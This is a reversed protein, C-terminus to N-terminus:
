TGTTAPAVHFRDHYERPSMGVCRRFARRLREESGLGCRRAIAEIRMDSEELLRRAMEVRTREIFRAPTMGLERDFLRALTRPSMAGHEALMDATIEKTANALIWAALAALGEHGIMQAALHPSVQKEGGMRRLFMVKRHAVSVAIEKGFDEQVLALSQDLAASAGASTLFKGDRVFVQDREVRIAPFDAALRDCARWHTTARHGDLLGSTALVFTGTGTAAVRRAHPAAERVYRLLAEDRLASDMVGGAVVLTDVDKRATAFSDTALITLGCSTRVPGEERAVIRTEYAPVASAPFRERVALSAGRLIEMPGASDLIQAQDFVIIAVRRLGKADLAELEARIKAREEV